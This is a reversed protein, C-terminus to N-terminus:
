FSKNQEMASGIRNTYENSYWTEIVVTHEEPASVTGKSAKMLWGAYNQISLFLINMTNAQLHKTLEYMNAQIPGSYGHLKIFPECQSQLCCYYVTHIPMFLPPLM